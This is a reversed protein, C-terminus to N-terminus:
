RVFHSSSVVDPKGTPVGDQQSRGSPVRRQQSFFNSTCNKWNKWNKWNGLVGLVPELSRAIEAALQAAPPAFEVFELLNSESFTLAARM